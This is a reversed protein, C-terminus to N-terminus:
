WLVELWGQFERIDEKWHRVLEPYRKGMESEIDKQSDKIQQKAYARALTKIVEERFICLRRKIVKSNYCNLHAYVPMVYRTKGWEAGSCCGGVKVQPTGCTLFFRKHCIYCYDSLIEEVIEHRIVAKEDANTKGM